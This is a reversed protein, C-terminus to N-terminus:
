KNSKKALVPLYRYLFKVRMKEQLRSFFFPFMTSSTFFWNHQNEPFNPVARCSDVFGTHVPVKSVEHDSNDQDTSREQHPEDVLTEDVLKLRLKV